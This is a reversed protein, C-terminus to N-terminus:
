RDDEETAPQKGDWDHLSNLGDPHRWIFPQTENPWRDYKVWCLNGEVRIVDFGTEGEYPSQYTGRTGAKPASM